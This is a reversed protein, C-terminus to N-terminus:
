KASGKNLTHDPCVYLWEQCGLSYVCGCQYKGDEDPMNNMKPQRAVREESSTAQNKM